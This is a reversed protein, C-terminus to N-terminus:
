AAFAIMLIAPMAAINVLVSLLLIEGILRWRGQSRPIERDFLEALLPRVLSLVYAVMAVAYVAWAVTQPEVGNM